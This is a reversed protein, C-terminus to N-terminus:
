DPDNCQPAHAELAPIIETELNAAQVWDVIAPHTYVTNVYKSCIDNLEIGYTILRLAVPAFM